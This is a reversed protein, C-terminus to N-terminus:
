AYRNRLKNTRRWFDQRMTGIDKLLEAELEAPTGDFINDRPESANYLYAQYHVKSHKNHKNKIASYIRSM